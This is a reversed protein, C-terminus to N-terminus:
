KFFVDELLMNLIAEHSFLKSLDQIDSFIRIRCWVQDPYIIKKTPFLKGDYHILYQEM